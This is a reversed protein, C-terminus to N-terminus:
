GTTTTSADPPTADPTQGGDKTGANQASAPDAKPGGDKTETTSPLGAQAHKILTELATAASQVDGRARQSDAVLSGLATEARVTDRAIQGTPPPGPTPGNAAPTPAAPPAPPSANLMRACSAVVAAANVTQMNGQARVANHMAMGLTESMVAELLGFTQATPQGVPTGGGPTPTDTAM